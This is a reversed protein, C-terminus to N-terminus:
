GQGEALVRSIDIRYANIAPVVSAVFGLALCLLLVYLEELFFAGGTIGAENVPSSLWSLLEIAGHGLVFGLLTGALTIMLGSLLVYAFLKARTSGLSRMVALDYRQEKLTNYLAVFISLGSILVVLAAFGRLLDVGVGLLSFLRLTEFAPSAAQLATRSNVQRPMMVAAMPSRYQVLLATIEQEGSGAPLDVVPPRGRGSPGRGSPGPGARGPSTRGPGAPRPTQTVEGPTPSASPETAEAEEEDHAHTAWISEISTLILNDVVTNTEALIGVVRYPTADHAAGAEALGHQGAFTDGVALNLQEAVRAGLTTEFPQEWLKGEAVSAEYLDPYDHNTGVIRYSRYSDGLALPIASRVYRNRVVQRADGLSINGTPFDIHYVSSLILQLPSGKAGVVLDVGRASDTLQNKVQTNLSILIVIIAVGFALLLVSLVTNLPKSWSYRGSLSILNM